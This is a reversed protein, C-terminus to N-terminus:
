KLAPTSGATSRSYVSRTVFSQAQFRLRGVGTSHRINQLETAIRSGRVQDPIKGGPSLLPFLVAEVPKFGSRLDVPTDDHSRIVCFGVRDGNFRVGINVTIEGDEEMGGQHIYGAYHGDPCSIDGTRNQHIGGPFEQLCGHPLGPIRFQGADSLDEVAPNEM